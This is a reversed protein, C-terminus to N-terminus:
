ETNNYNHQTHINVPFNFKGAIKACRWNSVVCLAEKLFKKTHIYRRIDQSIARMESLTCVYRTVMNVQKM